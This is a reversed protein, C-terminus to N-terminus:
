KLGGAVSASWAFPPRWSGHMMGRATGTRSAITDRTIASRTRCIFAKGCVAHAEKRRARVLGCGIVPAGERLEGLAQGLAAHGDHIAGHGVEVRPQDRRELRAIRAGDDLDGAALLGLVECGQLLHEHAADGQGAGPRQHHHAAAREPVHRRHGRVQELSAHPQHLHGGRQERRHVAAEAALAGHVQDGSAVHHLVGRADEVIGVLRPDARLQEGGEGLGLLRSPAM